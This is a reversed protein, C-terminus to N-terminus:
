QHKPFRRESELRLWEGLDNAWTLQYTTYHKFYDADTDGRRMAVTSIACEKSYHGDISHGSPVGYWLSGLKFVDAGRHRVRIDVYTHGYESTPRSSEFADIIILEKQTPHQIRLTFLHQPPM